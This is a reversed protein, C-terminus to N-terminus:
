AYRLEGCILGAESAPNRGKLALLMLRRVGIEVEGAEGEAEGM